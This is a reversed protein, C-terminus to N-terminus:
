TSSIRWCHWSCYYSCYGQPLLKAASSNLGVETIREQVEDLYRGPISAVDKATAWPLDGNWYEPKGRSPTGGLVATAVESVAVRPWGGDMNLERADVPM